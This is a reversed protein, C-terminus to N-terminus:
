RVQAFWARFHNNAAPSVSVNKRMAWSLMQRHLVLHHIQNAHLALAASLLADRKPKNQETAAAVILRDLEANAFRGYNYAGRAENASNSHMLPDLTPQADTEAGGWSLMYFQSEFKGLKAFYQTLLMPNVSVRINIKALMAAIATCMPIDSAARNSPCDLTVDFGSGYGANQMLESARNLDFAPRALQASEGVCGSPVPTLCWAPLVSGRFIEQRLADTDIAHALAQRVALQRWPNPKEKLGPLTTSFQDMGLFVVRNEVSRQISLNPQQSLRDIDQAPPDTVIEVAGTLLASIRTSASSIPLHTLQQVNSTLPNWYRDFRQLVTRIDVSREVLSFPGTGMTNRSAFSEQKAKLSLPALVGNSHAWARNMIFISDVHDLFVPNFTDLRFEVTHSDILTPSGLARAYQAIASNPHQARLVSFVVDEATFTSGNHFTVGRRLKFVWRLPEPQSWSTALGPIIRLQEDRATLKEYIHANLSNTLSENQAHPDLSQIDRATSWRLTQASAQTVSISLM